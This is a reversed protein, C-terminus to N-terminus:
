IFAGFGKHLTEGALAETELAAQVSQGQAHRTVANVLGALTNGASREGDVDWLTNLSFGTDEPLSNHGIFHNIISARTQNAPFTTSYATAFTALHEQVAEIAGKISQRVKYGIDGMHRVKYESNNRGQRVMGNLCVLNFSGAETM